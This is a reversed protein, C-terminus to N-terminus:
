WVIEIDSLQIFLMKKIAVQFQLLISIAMFCKKQKWGCISNQVCIVKEFFKKKKCSKKQM